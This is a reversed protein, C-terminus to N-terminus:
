VRFRRAGTTMMTENISMRAMRSMKKMTVVVKLFFRGCSFIASGSDFAAAAESSFSCGNMRSTFSSVVSCSSPLGTVRSPKATAKRSVLAEAGSRPM